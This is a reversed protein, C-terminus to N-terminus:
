FKYSRDFSSGFLETLRIFFKRGFLEVSRVALATPCGPLNQMVQGIAVQMSVDPNLPRQGLIAWRYFGVIFFPPGFRVFNRLIRGQRYVQKDFQM